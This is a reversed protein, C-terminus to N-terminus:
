RGRRLEDDRKAALYRNYARLEADDGESESAPERPEGAAPPRDASTQAPPSAAAPQGRRLKRWIVVAYCGYFPWAFCYFDSLINGEMARRVQWWTAAACGAVTVVLVTALLAGHEGM